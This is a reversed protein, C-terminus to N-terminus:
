LTQHECEQLSVCDSAEGAKRNISFRCSPNVFPCKAQVQVEEDLWCVIDALITQDSNPDFGKSCGFSSSCTQEDSLANHRYPCDLKSFFEKNEMNMGWDHWFSQQSVGDQGKKWTGMGYTTAIRCCEWIEEWLAQVCIEANKEGSNGIPLLLIYVKSMPLFIALGRFAVVLFLKFRL